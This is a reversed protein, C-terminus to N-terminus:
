PLRHSGVVIQKDVNKLIALKFIGLIEWINELCNSTAM